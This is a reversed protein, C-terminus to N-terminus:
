MGPAFFANEGWGDDEIKQQDVITTMTKMKENSSERAKHRKANSQKKPQEITIWNWFDWLDENLKTKEFDRRIEDFVDVLATDDDTTTPHIRRIKPESTTHYILLISIYLCQRFM